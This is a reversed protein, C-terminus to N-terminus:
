DRLGGLRRGTMPRSRRRATPRPRAPPGAHRGRVAPSPVGGPSGRLGRRPQAPLHLRARRLAPRHHAAAPVPAAALRRPRGERPRPLAGRQPPQPRLHVRGRGHGGRPGLRRLERDVVECTRGQMKEVTDVLPAVAFDAALARRIAAIQVHHPAVVFLGKDAAPADSTCGALRDKLARALAGVIAAEAPSEREQSTRDVEVVVLPLRPDLVREAFRALAPDGQGARAAPAPGLTLRHGATKRDAPAFAVALEPRYILASPASTLVDNMRRGATLAARGPHDPGVAHLAHAFVSATPDFRGDDEPEPYTGRFIPGLQQDDGCVLLRGAPKVRHVALMAEPLRLQSAEDVVVLDFQTSRSDKKLLAYTTACAVLPRGAAEAEACAADIGRTKSTVRALAIEGSGAVRRLEGHLEDIAAHTFATVLVSFPRGAGAHARALTDILRALTFTKGTGPPGILVTLRQGLLAALAQRQDASPLATAAITEARTRVAQPVPLPAAFGAPDALFAPAASTPADDIAALAEVVRVTNFDRFRPFLFFAGEEAVTAGKADAVLRLRAPRDARDTDVAAVTVAQAAPNPPAPPCWLGGTATRRFLGFRYDRLGVSAQRGDADDAVLWHASGPDADIRGGTPAVLAFWGAGAAGLRVAVDGECLQERPQFRVARAAECAAVLEYRTVFTLQALRPHHFSRGSWFAFKPAWTPLREGALEQVRWALARQAFLRQRVRSSLRDSGDGADSRAHLAEDRLALGIPFDFRASRRYEFPHTADGLLSGAVEPM